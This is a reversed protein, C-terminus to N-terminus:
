QIKKHFKERFIQTWQSRSFIWGAYLGMQGPSQPFIYHKEISFRRITRIYRGFVKMLKKLGKSRIILAFYYIHSLLIIPIIILRETLSPIRRWIRWKNALIIGLLFSPKSSFSLRKKGYSASGIHWFKLNPLYFPLFGNLRLRLFLDIDEGFSIFQSDYYDGNSLRIKELAKRIIPPACGSPGLLKLKTEFDPHWKSIHMRRVFSVGHNRYKETLCKKSWDWILENGVFTGIKERKYKQFAVSLIDVYQPDLYIDTNLPVIIKGKAHSIGANMGGAFHLNKSLRIVNWNKLKYSEIKSIIRNLSDDISANDVIIIDWDNNSQKALSDILNEVYNGSNHNLLVFSILAM